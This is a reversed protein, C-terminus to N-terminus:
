NNALFIEIPFLKIGFNGVLISKFVMHLCRFADFHEITIFKQRLDLSFLLRSSLPDTHILLFRFLGPLNVILLFSSLLNFTLFLDLSVSTFELEFFLFYDSFQYPM